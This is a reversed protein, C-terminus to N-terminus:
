NQFPPIPLLLQGKETDEALQKMFKYQEYLESIQAPLPRNKYVSKLYNLAGRIHRSTKESFDRKELAELLAFLYEGLKEDAVEIKREGDKPGKISLGLFEFYVERKAELYATKEDPIKFQGCSLGEVIKIALRREPEPMSPETTSLAFNDVYRTLKYGRETAFSFLLRDIETLLLNFIIPSSTYGLPLYGVNLNKGPSYCTLHAMLAALEKKFGIKQFSSQVYEKKTSPFANKIDFTFFANAQLHPLIATRHSRGGVFGHNIQSISHPYVLTAIRVQIENLPWLAKQIERTGGSKKPTTWVSYATKAKLMQLAMLILDTSVSLGKALEEITEKWGLEIM